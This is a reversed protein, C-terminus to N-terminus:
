SALREALQREVEELPIWPGESRMAREVREIYEPRLKFGFDIDGFYEWVVDEVVDRIIEKFEEVSLEGVTM